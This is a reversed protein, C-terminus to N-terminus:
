NVWISLFPKLFINSNTQFLFIIVKRPTLYDELISSDDGSDDMVPATLTYKMLNNTATTTSSPNTLLPPPVYESLTTSEDDETETIKSTPNSTTSFLDSEDLPKTFFLIPDAEKNTEKTTSWPDNKNEFLNENTTDDPAQFHSSWVSDFKQDFPDLVQKNTQDHWNIISALNETPILQNTELEPINEDENYVQFIAEALIQDVFGEIQNHYSENVQTFALQLINTVLKEVIPKVQDDFSLSEEEQEEDEEYLIMSQQGQNMNPQELEDIPFLEHHIANIMPNAVTHDVHLPPSPIPLFPMSSMQVDKIVSELNQTSTFTIIPEPNELHSIIWNLFHKLDNEEEEKKEEDEGFLSDWTINNSIPKTTSDDFPNSKQNTNLLTDWAFTNPDIDNNTSDIHSISQNWLDDFNYNALPQNSRMGFEKVDADKKDVFVDDFMNTTTTTTTPAFPDFLNTATQQNLDDNSLNSMNIKTNSIQLDDTILQNSYLTSEDRQNLSLLNFSSPSADVVSSHSDNNFLIPSTTSTLSFFTSPSKTEEKEEVQKKREYKEKQKDDDDNHNKVFIANKKENKEKQEEDTKKIKDIAYPSSSIIHSSHQNKKKLLETINESAFDPSIKEQNLDSSYSSSLHSEVQNNEQSPNIINHLQSLTKLLELDDDSENDTNM